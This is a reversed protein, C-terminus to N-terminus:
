DTSALDELVGTMGYRTLKAYLSQRSLGLREAAATRNGQAFELAAEICHREILEGAERVLQLLPTAGSQGTISALTAALREDAPSVAAAGRGPSKAPRRSIDRILLGIRDPSQDADGAASIEVRLDSGLAGHLTTVFRAGAGICM